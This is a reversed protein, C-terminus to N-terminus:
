LLGLAIARLVAQHKNAADLKKFVNRLHFNVTHVSVGLIEGVAWASKGEMTWRLIEVERSTLRVDSPGGNPPLMLRTAADQAHVALLQLDAMIRTLRDEQIPLPQDRDVGLLFHKQGPLHLAVSVGTRYGFSAQQEWLDAAGESVYLQQDYIFPISLRKLRKMVPDRISDQVNKSAEAFAQPTNGIAVIATRQSPGPREVFMAATVLGFGMDAAFRVLGSELSALDASQSIDFYRQLSM